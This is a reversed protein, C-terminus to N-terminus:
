RAHPDQVRMQLQAVPIAAPSHLIPLWKIVIVIVEIGYPGFDKCIKQTLSQCRLPSCLLDHTADLLRSWKSSAEPM